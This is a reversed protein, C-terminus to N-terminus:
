QVCSEEVGWQVSPQPEKRGSLDADYRCKGKPSSLSDIGFGFRSVESVAHPECCM